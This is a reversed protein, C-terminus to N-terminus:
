PSRSLICGISNLHIVHKIGGRKSEEGEKLFAAHSAHVLFYRCVLFYRQVIYVFMRCFLDLLKWDANKSRETFIIQLFYIFKRNAARTGPNIGDTNPSDIPALVTVNSVQVDSCMEIAETLM